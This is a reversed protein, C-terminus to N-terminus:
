RIPPFSERCRWATRGQGWGSRGAPFPWWTTRLAPAFACRGHIGGQSRWVWVPRCGTGVLDGEMRSPVGADTSHISNRLPNRGRSARRGAPLRVDSLYGFAGNEDGGGHGAHRLSTMSRELTMACLNCAFREMTKSCGAQLGKGSPSHPAELCDWESVPRPLVVRGGPSEGPPKRNCSRRSSRRGVTWRPCRRPGPSPWCPRCLDLRCLCMRTPAPLSAQGRLILPVWAGGLCGAQWPEVPSQLQARVEESRPHQARFRQRVHVGCPTTGIGLSDLAELIVGGLTSDETM